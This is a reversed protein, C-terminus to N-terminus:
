LQVPETQVDTAHVDLGRVIRFDSHNGNDDDTNDNAFM